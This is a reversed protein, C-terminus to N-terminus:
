KVALAGAPFLAGVSVKALLGPVRGTRGPVPVAFSGRDPDPSVGAGPGPHGDAARALCDNDHGGGWVLSDGAPSSLSCQPLSPAPPTGDRTGPPAVGIDCMRIESNPSVVTVSSPPRARGIAPTLDVRMRSISARCCPSDSALSTIASRRQSPEGGGEHTPVSSPWTEVRRRSM